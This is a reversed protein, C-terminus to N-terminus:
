LRKRERIGGAAIPVGHAGRGCPSETLHLRIAQESRPGGDNDPHIKIRPGGAASGDNVVFTTSRGGIWDPGHQWM